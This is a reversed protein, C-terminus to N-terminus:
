GAGVADIVSSCSRVRGHFCALHRGRELIKALELGFRPALYPLLRHIFLCKATGFAWRGIALGLFPPAFSQQATFEKGM